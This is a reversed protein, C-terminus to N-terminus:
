VVGTAVVTTWDRHQSASDPWIIPRGGTQVESGHRPDEISVAGLQGAACLWLLFPKCDCGQLTAFGVFGFLLSCVFVSVSVVLVFLCAVLGCVGVFVFTAGLRSDAGVCVYVRAASWRASCTRLIVLFPM